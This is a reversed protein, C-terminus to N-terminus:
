AQWLAINAGAGSPGWGGSPLWWIAALALALLLLQLLPAGQRGWRVILQGYRQLKSWINWM